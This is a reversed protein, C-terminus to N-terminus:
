RKFFKKKKKAEKIPFYFPKRTFVFEGFKLSQIYKIVILTKALNGKYIFFSHNKLSIPITSSKNFFLKNKKKIQAKKNFISRFIYNSFFFFKWKSRAM